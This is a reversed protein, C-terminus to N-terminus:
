LRFFCTVVGRSGDVGSGRTAKGSMVGGGRGGDCVCASSGVPLVFVPRRNHKSHTHREPVLPLTRTAEMRRTRGTHAPEQHVPGRRPGGQFPLQQYYRM